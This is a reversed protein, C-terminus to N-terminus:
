TPEDETLLRQKDQEAMMAAKRDQEAQALEWATRRPKHPTVDIVNSPADLQPKGIHEIEIHIIQPQSNDTVELQDPIKGVVWPTLWERARHDGDIAQEVAKM